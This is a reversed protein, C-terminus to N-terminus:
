KAFSSVLVWNMEKELDGLKFIDSSSEFRTEIGFSGIANNSFICVRSASCLLLYIGISGQGGQLSSLSAHGKMDRAYLIILSTM